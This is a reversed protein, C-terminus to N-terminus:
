HGSDSIRQLYRSISDLIEDATKSWVFPRPDQNWGDVWSQISGILEAVSRHTGRQLWKTTLEAFWREV